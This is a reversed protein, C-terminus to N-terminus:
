QNARKEENEGDNVGAETWGRRTHNLDDDIGRRWQTLYLYSLRVHDGDPGIV